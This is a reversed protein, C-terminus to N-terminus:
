GNHHVHAFVQHHVIVVMRVTQLAFQLKVFRGMGCDLHAHVCMQHHVHEVM